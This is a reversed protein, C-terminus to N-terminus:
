GSLTQNKEPDFRRDYPLGFTHAVPGNTVTGRYINIACAVPPAAEAAADIGATAIQLAWPLTVNCLAFTSTGGVAGPINAVCYHVVEEVIFTPASHTTPHTTEVCGGQDVAVDIIVSGPTM